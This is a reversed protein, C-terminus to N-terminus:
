LDLIEFREKRDSLTKQKFRHSKSLVNIFKVDDPHITINCIYREIVMGDSRLIWGKLYSGKSRDVKVLVGEEKQEEVIFLVRCGVLLDSM